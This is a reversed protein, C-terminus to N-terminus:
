FSYKLFDHGENEIIRRVVFSFGMKEYFGRARLTYVWLERGGRQRIAEILHEILLTGIGRRRLKEDVAFYSVWYIDDGYPFIEGLSKGAWSGNDQYWGIVGVTKRNDEASFINKNKDRLSKNFFRIIKSHTGVKAAVAIALAQRKNEDSLPNIKITSM